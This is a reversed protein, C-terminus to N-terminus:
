AQNAWCHSAFDGDGLPDFRATVRHNEPQAFARDGEVRDDLPGFREVGTFHLQALDKIEIGHQGLFRGGFGHGVIGLFGVAFDAFGRGARGELLFLVDLFLFRSVGVLVLVADFAARAARYLFLFLVVGEAERLHFGLEFGFRKLLKGVDGRQEALELLDMTIAEFRHAQPDIERRGLFLGILLQAFIQGRLDFRHLEM